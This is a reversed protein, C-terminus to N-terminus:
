RKGGKPPAHELAERNWGGLNAAAEYTSQFFDLILNEPAVDQRVDEYRLLFLGLVPDFHAEEPRVAAERFGPSEPYAYSFFAPEGLTAGAMTANGPWFGCTVNEQSEALQLFFPAGVPPDAPRGSFRSAALDFSGWFFNVPSGKGVFPSRYHQLVKETQLMIRWWRQVPDPDYSAHHTDVECSIPNPIEVPLPNIAVEIGMARLTGLFESYFEAVSRPILPMSRTRGDSAHIFLTHDIFDFDVAFTGDGAPIPGTTLGRSTLTFAVNWWENLFPTLELKVKGVIQTWLHLTEQTDAWAALPLAPWAETATLGSAM